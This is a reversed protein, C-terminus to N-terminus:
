CAKISHLRNIVIAKICDWLLIRLTSMRQTLFFFFRSKMAECFKCRPIQHREPTNNLITLNEIIPLPQSSVKWRKLNDKLRLLKAQWEPNFECFLCHIRIGVFNFSNPFVVGGFSSWRTSSIIAVAKYRRRKTKKRTGIMWRIKLKRNQKTVRNREHSPLLSSINQNTKVSVALLM